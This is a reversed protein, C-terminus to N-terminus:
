TSWRQSPPSSVLKWVIELRMLRSWSSRSQVSLPVISSSGTRSRIAAMDSRSLSSILRPPTASM